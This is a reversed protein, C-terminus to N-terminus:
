PADEPLRTLYLVGLRKGNPGDTPYVCILNPGEIVYDYDAVPDYPSEGSVKGYLVEFREKISEWASLSMGWRIRLRKGNTWWCLESGFAGMLSGAHQRASMMGSGDGRLMWETKPEFNTRDTAAALQEATAPADETMLWRGVLQPDHRHTLKWAAFTGAVILALLAIVLRRCRM